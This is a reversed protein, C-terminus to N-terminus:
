LDQIHIKRTHGCSTGQVAQHLGLKDVRVFQIIHSHLGGDKCSCPMRAHVWHRSSLHLRCPCHGTKTLLHIISEQSSDHSSAETQRFFTASNENTCTWQILFHIEQLMHLNKLAKTVLQIPGSSRCCEVPILAVRQCHYWCFLGKLQDLLVLNVKDDVNGGHVLLLIDCCILQASSCHIIQYREDRVHSTCLQNDLGQLSHLFHLAQVPLFIKVHTVYIHLITHGFPRLSLSSYSGDKPGSAPVTAFCALVHNM